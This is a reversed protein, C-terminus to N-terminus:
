FPYYNENVMKIETKMTGDPTFRYYYVVTIGTFHSSSQVMNKVAVITDGGSEYCDTETIKNHEPKIEYLTNFLKGDEYYVLYSNLLDYSFWNEIEYEADVNCQKSVVRMKYDDMLTIDIDPINQELTIEEYGSGKSLVVKIDYHRYGEWEIIVDKKGDKNLDRTWINPGGSESSLTIQLSKGNINLMPTESNDYKLSINMDDESYYYHRKNSNSQLNMDSVMRTAPIAKAGEPTIDYRKEPRVDFITTQKETVVETPTETQSESQTEKDVMDRTENSVAESDSCGCCLCMVLVLVGILKRM